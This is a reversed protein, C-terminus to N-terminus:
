SILPNNKTFEIEFGASFDLDDKKVTYLDIDFVKAISSNVNEAESVDILPEALATNRLCSM